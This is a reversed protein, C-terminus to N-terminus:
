TREETLENLWEERSIVSVHTIGNVEDPYECDFHMGISEATRISPENTYKCYSYLAPHDTNRFAWDRVAKAAERAYGKRQCDRRIHYGIEPLMEGKIRQMTLGCDGIMEGTEKLCVAWLGFGHERYRNVNREIWDKVRQEDFAYPYHRMTVPDALVRYLADDDSRDMERLYLRETELFKRVSVANLKAYVYTDKWIPNGNEDKHFWINQRFHAERRLGVKELLKWSATNRPDCEAFVRHAGQQFANGIVASLAEGAYGMGQYNRNIIYGVEKADFDRNGCYINGIVKGSDPLVVAYFEESGLRQRLYARGNEYTIGPYGEFEDDKLQFLFEFLDDYDSEQFPRLLLRETRIEKM